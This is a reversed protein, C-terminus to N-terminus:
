GGAHELRLRIRFRELGAAQAVIPASFQVGVFLPSAELVPLLQSASPALGTIEVTGNRYTLESLYASDPLLGTLERLIDAQRARGLVTSNLYGLRTRREQVERNVAEVATMKIKLDHIERDVLALERQQRVGYGVLHAALVLGLLIALVATLRRSPARHLEDQREAALEIGSLAGRPGAHALALAHAFPSLDAPPASWRVLPWPSFTRVPAQLANQLTTVLHSRNAGYGTVWLAPLAGGELMERFLPSSLRIALAAGLQEAATQRLGAGPDTAAGAGAPAPALSERWRPDEIPAVM